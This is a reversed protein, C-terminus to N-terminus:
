DGHMVPDRSSGVLPHQDQVLSQWPSQCPLWDTESVLRGWTGECTPCAVCHLILETPTQIGWHMGGSVLYQLALIFHGRLM